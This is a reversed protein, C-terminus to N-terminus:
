NWDELIYYWDSDIKTHWLENPIDAPLQYGPDFVYRQRAGGCHFVGHKVHGSTDYSMEEIFYVGTGTSQIAKWIRELDARATQDFDPSNASAPRPPSGEKTHAFMGRKYGIVQCWDQYRLGTVQDAAFEPFIKRLAATDRSYDSATKKPESCSCVFLAAILLLCIQKM